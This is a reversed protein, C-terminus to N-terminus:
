DEPTATERWASEPRADRAGLFNGKLWAGMKLQSVAKYLAPVQSEFPLPNRYAGCLRQTSKYCNIDNTHSGTRGVDLACSLVQRGMACSKRNVHLVWCRAQHFIM